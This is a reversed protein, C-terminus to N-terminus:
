GRWRECKSNKNRKKGYANIQKIFAEGLVV